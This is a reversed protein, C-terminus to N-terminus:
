MCRQGFDQRRTPPLQVRGQGALGGGGCEDEEQVSEQVFTNFVTHLWGVCYRLTGYNVELKCLMGYDPSGANADLYVFLKGTAMQRYISAWAATDSLHPTPIRGDRNVPEGEKLKRIINIPYKAALLEKLLKPDRILTDGSINLDKIQSPYLSAFDLITVAVPVWAQMLLKRQICARLHTQPEPLRLALEMRENKQKLSFGQRGAAPTFVYAGEYPQKAEKNIFKAVVPEVFGDKV